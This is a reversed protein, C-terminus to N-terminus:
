IAAKHRPGEMAPNDLCRLVSNAGETACVLMFVDMVRVCVLCVNLGLM